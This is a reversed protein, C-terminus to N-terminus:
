GPVSDLYDAGGLDDDPTHDSESLYNTFYARYTEEGLLDCLDQEFSNTAM